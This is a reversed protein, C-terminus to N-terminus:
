VSLLKEIKNPNFFQQIIFNRPKFLKKHPDYEILGLRIFPYANKEKQDDTGQNNSKDELNELDDYVYVFNDRYWDFHPSNLKNNREFFDKIPYLFPSEDEKKLPFVCENYETVYDTYNKTFPKEYYWFVGCNNIHHFSEMLEFKVCNLKLFVLSKLWRHFFWPYGETSEYAKKKIIERDSSVFFGKLQKEIFNDCDTKNFFSFDYIMRKLSAKKKRENDIIYNQRTTIIFKYSLGTRTGLINENYLKRLEETFTKIVSTFKEPETQQEELRHFDDFEFFFVILSGNQGIKFRGFIEDIVDVLIKFISDDPDDIKKDIFKKFFHEEDQLYKRIGKSNEITRSKTEESVLENDSVVKDVYKYAWWAYVFYNLYDLYEAKDKAIKDIKPKILEPKVPIPYIKKKNCDDKLFKYKESIQKAFLTKGTLQSNSLVIVNNKKLKKIVFDVTVKGENREVLPTENNEEVSPLSFLFRGYVDKNNQPLEEIDKKAKLKCFVDKNKLKELFNVIEKFYDVGASDDRIAKFWKLTESTDKNNICISIFNNVRNEFSDGKLQALPFGSKQLCINFNDDNLEYHKTITDLLTTRKQELFNILSNEESKDDM